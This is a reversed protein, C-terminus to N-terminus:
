NKIQTRLFLISVLCLMGYFLTEYLEYSSKDYFFLKQEKSGTDRFTKLKKNEINFTAIDDFPNVNKLGSVLGKLKDVDQEVGLFLRQYHKLLTNLESKITNINRKKKLLELTTSTNIMDLYLKTDEESFVKKYDGKLKEIYSDLELTDKVNNVNTKLKSFCCGKAPSVNNIIDNRSRDVNKGIFFNCNKDKNGDEYGEVNDEIDNIDAVYTDFCINSM